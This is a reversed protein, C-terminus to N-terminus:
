IPNLGVAATLIIVARPVGIHKPGVVPLRVIMVFEELLLLLHYLFAFYSQLLLLHRPNEVHWFHLLLAAHSWPHHATASRHLIIKDIIRSLIFKILALVHISGIRHGMLATLHLGIVAANIILPEMSLLISDFARFIEFLCIVFKHLFEVVLLAGVQQNRFFIHNNM